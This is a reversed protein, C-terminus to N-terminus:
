ALRDPYTLLVEAFRIPGGDFPFGNVMALNSRLRNGYGMDRAMGSAFAYRDLVLVLYSPWIFGRPLRSFLDKFFFFLGSVRTKFVDHYDTDEDM